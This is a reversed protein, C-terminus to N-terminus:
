GRRVIPQLCAVQLVTDSFLHRKYHVSGYNAQIDDVRLPQSDQENWARNTFKKAVHQCQKRSAFHVAFTINEEFERV